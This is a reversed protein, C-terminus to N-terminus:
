VGEVQQCHDKVSRCPRWSGYQNRAGLFFPLWPIPQPLMAAGGAQSLIAVVETPESKWELTVDRDPDIGNQELLYRLAYEPVAGKGTCYITKGKLDAFQTIAGDTDVIYTVGLTNVALLQIAGQTNNYLVSALNAPIAVIDLEGRVLLPTLEDAAGAITFDYDNFTDGREADSLLKVMGITTPGKLGGLRITTPLVAAQGAGQSAGTDTGAGTGAGTSTDATSGVDVGVSEGSGTIAGAGVGTGAGTGSNASAEGGAGSGTGVGVSSSDSNGCGAVLSMSLIFALCLAMYKWGHKGM